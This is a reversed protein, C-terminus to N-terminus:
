FFPFLPSLLISRVTATDARKRTSAAKTIVRRGGQFVEDPLEASTVAGLNTQFKVNIYGMFMSM